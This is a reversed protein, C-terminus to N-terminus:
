YQNNEKKFTRVLENTIVKAADGKGFVSTRNKITVTKIKEFAKLLQDGEGSCHVAGGYNTVEPWFPREMIIALPKKAFFAERQVGGSDTIVLASNHLLTQMAFYGQPPIIKFECEIGNKELVQKTNPHLPCVVPLQQHIRNLSRIVNQLIDLHEINQRRHITALLYQKREFGNDELIKTSKTFRKKYHLYADLMLDGSYVVNSPIEKMFGEKKLQRENLRTCCFNITAMRDTLYRNSEEPMAEDFTRIGAEIHAVPIGLKKGTLAGALTTNTDGFVVIVDPNAKPIEKELAEMTQSILAVHSLSHINLNITPIDIALERFFVDSMQESYHQGTHIISEKIFAHKAMEMHLVALKVFQPRNGVIYLVNM